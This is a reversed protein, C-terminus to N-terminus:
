DQHERIGALLMTVIGWIVVAFIATSAVARIRRPEVAVDPRSPQVVRELYLQKRQAENRAQELSVLASQLQRDAFERELALRQFDAAKSTLSTKGGTVKATEADISGELTSAKLKAAQLQSNDPAFARLQAIQTRTAILEDQLKAVQQLQGASQREPDVVGRDGRFQAVAVAAEKARREAASVESAAFRILDERGRDNLRNVLREAADLLVTNIRQSLDAEHARVRITSIGSATDLTLEVHRQYYRHLAEFSDDLDLAPFRSLRDIANRSYAVRFAVTEDLLKLADRSLIYDHVTYIDETSRAFGAIGAGQLLAGLGTSAQRQSARIIFRAESVYVDSAVFGFYGACLVLPALVIVVFLRHRGVLLKAGDVVNSMKM